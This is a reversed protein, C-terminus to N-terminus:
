NDLEGQRRSTDVRNENLFEQLKNTIAGYSEISGLAFSKGQDDLLLMSWDPNKSSEGVNQIVAKYGKRDGTGLKQIVNDILTELERHVKSREADGEDYFPELYDAAFKEGIISGVDRGDKEITVTNLNIIVRKLKQQSHM